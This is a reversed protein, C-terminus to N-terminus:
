NPNIYSFLSKGCVFVDITRLDADWILIDARKGPELSGAVSDVAAARAPNQSAARVADELRIGYKVANRVCDALNVASGAIAGNEALCARGGKVIVMRGGLEYEGDPMGTCRISDSVLCIRSAGFMSFMARIVSPHLHVGDSIIEVYAAHDYAAGIVGPARREFPPMANFMHTLHSAGAHFAAAAADYDADTHALSVTCRKAARSILEMGGPLEPAIGLMRINGGSVAYLRDFMEKDPAIINGPNQAGCKDPNLFPGEMNVGRLVAGCGERGFYPAAARMIGTLRDEGYSMAASVVSTVGCRGYYALMRELGASDADCFDGNVCGHTHIDVFGPLVYAGGADFGEGTMSAAPAINTIIGNEFALDAKTFVCDAGFVLGNRIIM